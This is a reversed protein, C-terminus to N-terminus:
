RNGTQNGAVLFDQKTIISGPESSRTTGAHGFHLNDLLRKRLDVLVVIRNDMFVLRRRISLKDYVPRFGDPTTERDEWIMSPRVITLEHDIATRPIRSKLDLMIEFEAKKITEESTKRHSSFKGVIYNNQFYHNEEGETNFNSWDM